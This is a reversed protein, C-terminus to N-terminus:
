RSCTTSWRFPPARTPRRRQPDDAYLFRRRAGTRHENILAIDGSGDYYITAWESGVYMHVPRDGALDINLASPESEVLDFHDGHEELYIGGDFVHVANADSSVAIAFRGSATPYIRGARSGLDFENQHVEGSHLEIVTLGSGEGDGILLRGELAVAEGHGHDDHGHDDHDGEPFPLEVLEQAELGDSAVVQVADAPFPAKM